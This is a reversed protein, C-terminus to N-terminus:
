KINGKLDVKKANYLAIKGDKNLKDWSSTFGHYEIKGDAHEM